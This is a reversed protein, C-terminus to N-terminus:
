LKVLKKMGIVGNAGMVRCFYTGSPLAATELLIHQAGEGATQQLVPQGQLSYLTVNARGSLPTSFEVTTLGSTPNPYLSFGPGAQLPVAPTSVVTECPPPPAEGPILPGLRYNPFHPLT